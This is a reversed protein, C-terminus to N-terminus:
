LVFQLRIKKKVKDEDEFLFMRFSQKSYNPVDVYTVVRSLLRLDELYAMYNISGDNKIIKDFVVGNYEREMIDPSSYCRNLVECDTQIKRISRMSTNIYDMKGMWDCLFRTADESMSRITGLHRMLIMQNLLDVLRRIPSTIHIYSKMTKTNGTTLSRPKMFEHDIYADKDFIIYQGITNNWNRIVRNTEENFGSIETEQNSTPPHIFAMSRFIGIEEGAMKLGTYANMEVMWYAVLDHSNKISKDMRQSLEFLTRYCSDKEVLVPDEYSYNKSVRILVNKYVFPSGAVSNGDVDLYFEMALAFRPQNEQLSCLSDSLITPLMPRRRDPLYITAVRQSFSQWLGLTELWLFVNAIYVTVRYGTQIPEISFGDDFDLSNAPDITFVYRDRCDEIGFDPHKLIQDIYDMNTRENLKTRTKSTFETMSTHLSKCYLQYEYFVELNDVDGLTEILIGHPHKETWSDFRFVVYKNTQVKSFGLKIEYPVLFAPLRRDDPICKYLLRKKNTTRGFTRNSDLQLVGAISHCTKIYSHLLTVTDADVCFLDRSFMKQDMPSIQNLAPFQALSVMDNTEVDVFYWNSYQRDEVMLKLKRTERTEEM